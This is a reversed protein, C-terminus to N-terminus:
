YAARPAKNDIIWQMRDRLAIVSRRDTRSDGEMIYLMQVSSTCQLTRSRHMRRTTRHSSAPSAVRSARDYPLGSRASHYFGTRLSSAHGRFLREHLGAAYCLSLYMIGMLDGANACERFLHMALRTDPNRISAPKRSGYLHMRGLMLKADLWGRDAANQLLAMTNAITAKSEDGSEYYDMGLQYMGQASGGRAAITDYYMAKKHDRPVSLGHHYDFAAEAYADPDPFHGLCYAHAEAYLGNLRLSNVFDREFGM